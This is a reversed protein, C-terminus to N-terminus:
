SSRQVLDTVKRAANLWPYEGTFMALFIHDPNIQNMSNSSRHNVWSIHRNLYSDQVVM